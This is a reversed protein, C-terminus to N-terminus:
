SFCLLQQAGSAAVAMSDAAGLRFCGGGPCRHGEGAQGVEAAWGPDLIVGEWMCLALDM